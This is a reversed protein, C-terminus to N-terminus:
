AYVTGRGIVQSRFVNGVAQALAMEDMGPSPNVTIEVNVQSGMAAEPTISGAGSISAMSADAIANSMSEAAKVASDDAEIGLAIGRPIMVGVEDEMLRSPSSTEFFGTIANKVASAAGKAANVVNSIANTIGNKIGELINSGIEAWDIEGFANKIADFVQPLAKLLDPITNLIGAIVQGLIEIGTQLIQPLNEGVYGVFSAIVQLVTTGIDPLAGMIGTLLETLVSKGAALIDPLNSTVTSVFQSVISTVSTIIDPLGQLIGVILNAILTGGTTILDPLREMASALLSNILQGGTTIIDPLKQVLGTILNVVLEGGQTLIDVKATELPTIVNDIISQASTLIDPLATTIGSILNQIVESGKSLIEPLKTTIASQINDMLRAGAELITPMANQLGTFLNTAIEGAWSLVNPILTTVATSLLTPIQSFLNGLMEFANSGFAVLSQGLGNLAGELNEGTTMAALVNSWSSKLMNLSGTFTETAELATTGTIGLQDQIVQIASYVDSLNDINYEIGSIEEADALLREMETKTGGYGLKLNDLMTYNQKAFGQYANQISQMDTGMKNANDAMAIVAKDAAVAAEYENETSGKLAASFSTVTQMYDNASLGATEYAKNANDLALSQASELMAYQEAVEEVTKGYHEAYDEVTEFGNTGFLTQIGGISQELNAGEKFADVITKGIAAASVVGTLTRVLSGGLISGASSGASDAEGNLINSISGSIGKASPVIQVYATGLDPM